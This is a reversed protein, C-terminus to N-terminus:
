IAAENGRAYIAATYLTASAPASPTSARSKRVIRLLIKQSPTIRITLAGVVLSGISSYSGLAPFHPPDPQGRNGDGIVGIVGNKRAAMAFVPLQAVSAM